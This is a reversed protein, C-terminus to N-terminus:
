KQKKKYKYGLLEIQSLIENAFSIKDEDTLKNIDFGGYGMIVPQELIFEMADQASTFGNNVGDVKSNMCELVISNNGHQLIMDPMEGLLTSVPVNFADALKKLTTTSPNSKCNEIDSITSKSLGTIDSVQVLTYNLSKRINRINEGPTM